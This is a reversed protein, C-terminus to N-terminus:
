LVGPPWFRAFNNSVLNSRRLVFTVQGTLRHWGFSSRGARFKDFLMQGKRVWDIVTAFGLCAERGRRRGRPWIPTKVRCIAPCEHGPRTAHKRPEAAYAHERRQQPSLM